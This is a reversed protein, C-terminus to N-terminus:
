TDPRIRRSVSGERGASTKDHRKYKGSWFFIVAFTIETSTLWFHINISKDSITRVSHVQPPEYIAAVVARIGLPVDSHVEYRGYLYGIRQHGTSRWYNLFREVLSANEFM